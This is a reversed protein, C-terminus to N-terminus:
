KCKVALYLLWEGALLWISYFIGEIYKLRIAVHRSCSNCVFFAARNFEYQRYCHLELRYGHFPLWTLKCCSSWDELTPSVMMWCCCKTRSNLRRSKSLYDGNIRSTLEAQRSVKNGQWASLPLLFLKVKMLVQDAPQMQELAVSRHHFWIFLYWAM